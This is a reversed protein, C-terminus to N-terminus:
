GRGFFAEGLLIACLDSGHSDTANIGGDEIGATMVFAFYTYDTNTVDVLAGAGGNTFITEKVTPLSLRVPRSGDCVRISFRVKEEVDSIATPTNNTFEDIDMDLTVSAKVLVGNVLPRIAEWLVTIYDTRLDAVTALDDQTAHVVVQSSEGGADQLSFTLLMVAM